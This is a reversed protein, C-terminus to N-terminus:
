ATWAGAADARHTPALFPANQQRGHGCSGGMAVRRSPRGERSQAMRLSPCTQGVRLGMPRRGPDDGPSAPGLGGTPCVHRDRRITREEAHRHDWDRSPERGETACCPLCGYDGRKRTRGFRADPYSAFFPDSISRGSPVDVSFRAGICTLAVRLRCCAPSAATKPALAASRSAIRCWAPWGRM